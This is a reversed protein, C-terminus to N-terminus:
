GIANSLVSSARHSTSRAQDFAQRVAALAMREMDELTNGVIPGVNISGAGAQQRGGAIAAQTGPPLQAFLERSRNRDGLPLIIERPHVTVREPGTPSTFGGLAFARGGGGGLAGSGGSGAGNGTGLAPGYNGGVVGGTAADIQKVANSASVGLGAIQGATTILAPNFLTPLVTAATVGMASNMLTFSAYAKDIEPIVNLGLKDSFERVRGSSISIQETLIAAFHRQNEQTLLTRDALELQAQWIESEGKLLEIRATIKKEEDDFAKLRRAMAEAETKAGGANRRREEADAALKKEQEAKLQEQREIELEIAKADAEQKKLIAEEQDQAYDQAAQAARDNATANDELSQIQRDFSRDLAKIQDDLREAEAKGEDTSTDVEDRRDRLATIQRDRERRVREIRDSEAQDEDRDARAKRKAAQERAENEEEFKERLGQLSKQLGGIVEDFAASTRRSSAEIADAADEHAQADEEYGEIAREIAPRLERHAQTVKALELNLTAVQVTPRSFLAQGASRSDQLSTQASNLKLRNAAAISQGLAVSIAVISKAYEYADSRGRQQENRIAQLGELVGAQQASVGLEVAELYDIHNDKLAALLKSADQAEKGTGGLNRNLKGLEIAGKRGKEDTEDLKTNLDKLGVLEGLAGSFDLNVKGLRGIDLAKGPSVDNLLGILDNIPGRAQNVASEILTLVGTMTSGIVALIAHGTLTLIDLAVQGAGQWAAQWDGKLVAQVVRVMDQVTKSIDLILRAAANFPTALVNGVVALASGVSPALAVLLQMASTVSPLIENGLQILAVNVQNKLLQKQFEFTKSARDFAEETIGASNRIRDLAAATKEGNGAFATLFGNLGRVEPFLAAAQDVNGKLAAALDNMTAVFGKDQISQRLQEVSLGLGDLTERAADSPSALQNLIGLLATAAEPTPLVNTLIAISAGLEDFGVGLTSAIGLLRGLENALEAPEGRGERITAILIDTAQAATINEEGYAQMAATVVKVVDETTGLGASAAKAANETVTLAVNVDEIGSSLAFYAAAGLEDASKPVRQTLRLIGDALKATDAGTANTLADVKALGTEFRGASGLIKDFTVATATAALTAVLGAATLKAAGMAKSLNANAAAAKNAAATQAAASKTASTAVLDNARAIGKNAAEIKRSGALYQDLGLLVARLGIQDVAGFTM